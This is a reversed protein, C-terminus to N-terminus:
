GLIIPEEPYSILAPHESQALAVVITLPGLRGWFMAFIILLRGTLDLEGTYALSYGTNSFASIVEFAERFISGGMSISIFLTITAVLLTAVTMIAVAKGITEEPLTRGFAVAHRHGRTTAVVSVLLVGVTSTSVGGAMSAPAGGIFMWVMIILQTAQSLEELPLITLGATRASVITFISVAVKEGFSLHDLVSTYISRDLLMIATGVVTLLVTIMLTIRTNLSLMMGRRLYRGVDYVVAVGFGGVLILGGMVFLTYYDSGFGFLIGYDSGAFLDFGANCYSSISHFVAYWLAQGDPFVTRWRLWLLLAGIAEISLTIALVFLSLRFVGGERNVGLTQRAISRENLTVQRGVLRFLLVSFAIFGVGGIQLLLLIVVQGFLSFDNATNLVALGTVTTASTATFLADSWRIPTGSASAVPLKLLLTGLLIILAFGGILVQPTQLKSREHEPTGPRAPPRPKRNRTTPPAVPPPAKKLSIKTLYLEEEKPVAPAKAKGRQPRDETM